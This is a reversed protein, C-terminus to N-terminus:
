DQSAMYERVVVVLMWCLMRQVGEAFYDLHGLIRLVLCIHVLYEASYHDVTSHGVVVKCNRNGNDPYKNAM